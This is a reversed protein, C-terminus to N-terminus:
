IPTYVTQIKLEQDQPKSADWCLPQQSSYSEMQLSCDNVVSVRLFRDM